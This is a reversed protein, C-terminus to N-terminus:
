RSATVDSFIPIARHLLFTEITSRRSSRSGSRCRLCLMIREGYVERTPWSM